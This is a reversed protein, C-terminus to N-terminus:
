GFEAFGNGSIGVRSDIGKETMWLRGRRTEMIGRLSCWKSKILIAEWTKKKHPHSGDGSSNFGDCVM